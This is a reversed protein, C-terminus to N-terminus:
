NFIAAHKQNYSDLNLIGHLQEESDMGFLFYDVADKNSKVSQIMKVAFFM